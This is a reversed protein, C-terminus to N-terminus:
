ANRMHEIKMCHDMVVALGAGRAKQAAAENIVGLQMWLCWAGIAIAEDAIPGIAESRRFCDVVDIQAGTSKLAAAADTLTAHCPEGLIRRGAQSPNVPVILFGHQQLYSAVEHSPRQSDSSLGVVAITRARQLIAPIDIAIDPM